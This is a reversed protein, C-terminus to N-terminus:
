LVIPRPTEGISLSLKASLLITASLFMGYRCRSVASARCKELGDAAVRRREQTRASFLNGYDPIGTEAPPTRMRSRPWLLTRSSDPNVSV